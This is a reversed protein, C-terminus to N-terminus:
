AELLCDAKYVEVGSGHPLGSITFYDCKYQAFVDLSEQAAEYFLFPNDGTARLLIDADTLRIVDCFRELVNNLSGAYIKWGCGDVVPRLCAESAKDTAVYYQDAKVKKMANLTWSILPKGDLPLLAKEKLRSSSMRCQVVVVTM